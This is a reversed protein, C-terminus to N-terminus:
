IKNKAKQALKLLEKAHKKTLETIETGSIM